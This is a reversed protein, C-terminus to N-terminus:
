NKLQKDENTKIIIIFVLVLLFRLVIKEGYVLIEGNGFYSWLFPIRTQCLKTFTEDDNIKIIQQFSIM